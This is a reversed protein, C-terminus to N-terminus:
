ARSDVRIIRGEEDHHVVCVSSARGNIIELEPLEFHAAYDRLTMVKPTEAKRAPLLNWLLLTGSTGVLAMMSGELNLPSGNALLKMLTPHFSAGLNGVWAFVGLLPRWLWFWFGWLMATSADSCLRQHWRMQHRANIILSDSM